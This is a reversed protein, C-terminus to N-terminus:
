RADGARAAAAKVTNVSHRATPRIVLSWSVARSPRARTTRSAPTMQAAPMATALVAGVAATLRHPQATNPSPSAATAGVTSPAVRPTGFVGVGTAMAATVVM